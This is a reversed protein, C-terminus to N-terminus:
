NYATDYEGRKGYGRPIGAERALALAYERLGSKINIWLQRSAKKGLESVMAKFAEWRPHVKVAEPKPAELLARRKEEELLSEYAARAAETAEPGAVQQLRKDALLERTFADMRQWAREAAVREAEAEALFAGLHRPVRLGEYVQRKLRAEEAARVVGARTVVPRYPASM